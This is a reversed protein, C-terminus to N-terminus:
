TSAPLEQADADLEGWSLARNIAVRIIPRGELRQDQYQPYKRRLADVASAHEEREHPQPELIEATGYVRLWGLQTWDEDWRDALIVASPLVLLDKVRSLARPDPSAKPKEDIPTYLRPRGLRDDREGLVHCIPVLRPRGEPDVTALVSRRAQALFRREAPTLIPERDVGRDHM